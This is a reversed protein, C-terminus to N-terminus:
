KIRFTKIDRSVQSNIITALRGRGYQSNKAQIWNNYFAAIITKDEQYWMDYVGDEATQEIFIFSNSMENIEPLGNIRRTGNKYEKSISIDKIVTPIKKTPDKFLRVRIDLSKIGKGFFREALKLPIQLQEMLFGTEYTFSEVILCKKEKAM